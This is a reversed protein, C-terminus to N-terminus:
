RSRRGHLGLRGLVVLVVKLTVILLVIALVVDAVGDTWRWNALLAGGLGIHVAIALAGVTALVIARRVTM